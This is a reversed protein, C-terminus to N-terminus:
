AIVVYQRMEDEKVVQLSKVGQVRRSTKFDHTIVTIMNSFVWGYLSVLSIFVILSFTYMTVGLYSDCSLIQNDEYYDVDRCIILVDSLEIGHPIPGAGM